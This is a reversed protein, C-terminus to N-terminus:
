EARLAQMPDISAARRAPLWAAFLGTLLLVSCMAVFTLPNRPAVGFLLSRLVRAGALSAAIGLVMGIVVLLGAEQLVMRLIDGRQAGLAMRIGIENTRRAVTYSMVGYLGAGGLVLSILGFACLLLMTFRVQAVSAGVVEQLPEVNLLPARANDMFIRRAAGAVDIHASRTRVVWSTGQLHSGMETLKDPIQAEPLYMIEPAPKDLGAQKTDGVVGVIERVSDRFWPGMAAGILVHAGVPNKGKFYTDAIQQNVIVVPDSGHTDSLNFARGAIVPIHLADFFHATIPTYDAEGGFGPQREPRGIIDFPFDPVLQTPLTNSAAAAEVGPQVELRTVLQNLRRSLTASTTSQAETFSTKFTLVNEASFGPSTHVLKWFSTLLLAAAVLLMLSIAVEGVVLSKQALNRGAAVQAANVRLSENLRARRSEFAPVLSFCSACVLILVAAFVLASGGIRLSTFQPLNIPSLHMLLPMAFEAVLVGAIGGAVCLIANEVLLQRLIRWGSAGLAARLSIEHRRAIARTLLLSLINASVILLVMGVAGMLIELAPRVQGVLSDHLDLVRVSEYKNWLDPYTNKFELLVEKLDVEAQMRTVGPKMRAVFSYLQNRDKPVETIALPMWVDVKADLRFKPSAVGIVTFLQNGLTIARGVINKDANFRHKWIADSLVVVGPANQVMDKPGFDRGIEPEMQFVHFFGSTVRLADLPVAEGGQILNTHNPVYDYAPTSSFTRSARMMFLAQTGSYAPYTGTASPIGPYSREIRVLQGPHPFPLPKLVVGYLILFVTVNAGIGLALTAISTAAFGPSKRLQRLAFKVDAWLSEIWPWMWVERSREELLTANGFSRRAAHVAEERAMGDAVLAEIKEELHQRMEESLDATLKRRQFIGKLPNM